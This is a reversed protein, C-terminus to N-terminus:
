TDTPRPSLTKDVHEGSIKEEKSETSEQVELVRPEEDKPLFKRNM